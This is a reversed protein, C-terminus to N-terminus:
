FTVVERMNGFIGRWRCDTSASYTPRSASYALLRGLDELGEQYEGHSSSNLKNTLRESWRQFRTGARGLRELHDDFIHILMQPYELSTSLPQRSTCSLHRNLSSRLRNFWSTRGGREIAGELLDLAETRAQIDGQQGSLFAAKAQSWQFFAGLERQNAGQALNSCNEFSRKAARYNKSEFMETWGNVEDESADHPELEMPVEEPVARLHEELDTDFVNFDSNLFLSVRQVLERIELETADEASDIEAILNKPLGLRNSERGFHTAFRRDALVYVGFDDSARNCRGLAQIIRQNLRRLMFGADRLYATFFDEQINVARPLTAIVILRCEDAKFDMGDFRGAVFLHGIPAQKFEDIEDGLSTLMWTPHGELGNANLWETVANCYHEADSRGSCLWVSKPHIRLATLIAAALREPIDLDEIKNIVLMRRGYTTTSHEVPIPIKIIPQTGLRRALDATDGITASMYIRQIPTDYYDNRTLPYVYPRFWLTRNSLYLNAEEIQDRLRRWRFRLDTNAQLDPSADVIERIRDAVLNQDLFSFLETPATPPANLDLADHLVSYEPFRSALENVLTEFLSRHDFRDIEVSYLSHLCHEALHTDDMILLNAPDIVPRQNYYVWYNMIAVSTSRHYERKDIAPISPGPGEMRVASVGLSNAEQEMQRALTKNGTLIAAKNGDRRWVEAILLAILSKGAGTPLEIAIDSAETYESAYVRLTVSQAPRFDPFQTSGFEELLADYDIAGPM